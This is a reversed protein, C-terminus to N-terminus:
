TVYRPRLFYISISPMSFTQQVFRLFEHPNGRILQTEHSTVIVMIGTISIVLSVIEFETDATDSLNRFM